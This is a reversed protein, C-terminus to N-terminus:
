LTLTATAKGAKEPVVEFTETGAAVAEIQVDCSKLSPIEHMTYCGAGKRVAFKAGKIGGSEIKENKLQINEIKFTHKDTAGGFTFSDPTIYVGPTRLRQCVEETIEEEELGEEPPPPKPSASRGGVLVSVAIVHLASPRARTSLSERQEAKTATVESIGIPQEIYEELLVAESRSAFAISCALMSLVFAGCLAVTLVKLLNRLALRTSSSPEASDVVGVTYEMKYSVTQTQPSLLRSRYHDLESCM